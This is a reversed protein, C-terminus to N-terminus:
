FRYRFSFYLGIDQLDGSGTNSSVIPVGYDVRLSWLEQCISTSLPRAEIGFGIGVSALFQNSFLSTNPNDPHDWVVGADFFPAMIWTLDQLPASCDTPLKQAESKRQIREASTKNLPSDAYEEDVSLDTYNYESLNRQIPDADEPLYGQKDRVRRAIDRNWLTIRDEVSFRFGNDGSRANQRYGRLSQAGGIVFQQSSLLSDPTLQGDLQITLLHNRGIKQLWQTQGQWSFFHGDPTPENNTTAEFLGTGFNFQSRLVLASQTSRHLYEQIFKVVSTRTAGDKDAGAGALLPNLLEEASFVRGNQVTFGLSLAFEDRPTQLLPQRFNVEYIQSRGQIDLFRFDSQTIRNRNSAFRLQLTGNMPNVPVRYGVEWLQNGGTTSNYYSTVVESGIGLLNRYRLDGGLRVSGVSPPSNNDIGVSGAFTQAQVVEVELQSQQPNGTAKLVAQLSGIAIDERLLRLQDEIKNVNLPFSVGRRVRQCLYSKFQPSLDGKFAPQQAQETQSDQEQVDNLRSLNQTIKIGIPRIKELQGEQPFVDITLNGGVDNLKVGNLPIQSTLYGADRYMNNLAERVKQELLAGTEPDYLDRSGALRDMIQKPILATKDQFSLTFKGDGQRRQSASHAKDNEQVEVKIPLIHQSVSHVPRDFTCPDSESLTTAKPQSAGSLDSFEWRDGKTEQAELHLAQASRLVGSPLTPSAIAGERVGQMGVLGWGLMLGLALRLGRVM